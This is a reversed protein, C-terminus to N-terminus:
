NIYRFDISSFMAQFLSAWAEESGAAPDVDKTSARSIFGLGIRRESDTPPRGLALQYARNIRGEDDLGAEALLRRAAQRAQAMVFPHNMLFLAQPAIISSDRRGVVMSPDAFDFVEFLEPLANRFVPAYVSRRTEEKKFGYDAILGMPFTPGGMEFRLQGSVSLVTDRISEADLRRRNMRWLLRNEPDAAFARPDDATSLRYTRSLVIRRVLSKISWGDEMFRVALDDLLEGHSPPEGATGFNDTTRVIGAGFLWHWARNVIVRATLPNAKGGLWEALERRGSERNPFTPVDGYTAVRLFGRPALEGLNHVSGRVHVRADGIEAEEAITMVVDRKPGNEKIRKLEAEMERLKQQEAKAQAPGNNTSSADIPLFVVADVAVCGTTGENSIMVYGQGNKEFGYQGLSTFRGDISPAARMDVEVTKEGDASLITVPVAKSRNSGSTYALWVEFKGAEPFDPQFTLTKEGKGSSDDHIYGAGIFTPVVRSEKWDGVKKAKSDDVVIGPLDRTGIAGSGLALTKGEAVMRGRESKIRAELSATKEDFQRIAAEQEPSAPLPRELWRSVNAHDLTRTNRLIGALAYYDRTPIPDFKHDHCRACGITQALFAKGITDLQEDVVDMVLQQKDQEELNTNGLTLFTTAILQRRRDALNATPILDGAIQERIFQDFPMDANFADIVYDRYRWAQNMVFGRLTLSEAFRAVDLWHRGWREGFRPSALLRDVLKEYADPSTDAVFSAIVEPTPPLGVLDYHVRRVLSARDADGTPRIARAELPALIFRDIDTRPWDVDTVTPPEHRKPQQYAWAQRGTEIDIGTRVPTVKGDRPDPAGLNVWKEFDAVIEDPLKSRPPMEIGDYRLADILRSEDPKGPVLAPGSDGGKLLGVKSDLRLGGKIRKAESSHCSYCEKVLVPRIKREFFSIGEPEDAKSPMPGFLIALLGVTAFGSRADRM